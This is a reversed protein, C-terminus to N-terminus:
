AAVRVKAARVEAKIRERRADDRRIQDAWDAFCDTYCQVRQDHDLPRWGQVPEGNVIPHPLGPGPALEVRLRQRLMQIEEPTHEGRKMWTETVLNFDDAFQKSVRAM